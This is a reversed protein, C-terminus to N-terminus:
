GDHKPRVEEDPNRVFDRLQILGRRLYTKVTGVPKNLKAAIETHSLGDFYACELVERYKADLQELAHVIIAKREQAIASQIPDAAPHPRDQAEANDHIPGAPRAARSRLRDLARSRALTLLYAAPSGRGANFRDAKAWLEQFVDVMVDEALGPDKLIRLCLAHVLPSHRDYLPPWPPRIAASSGSSSRSIMRGRTLRPPMRTV